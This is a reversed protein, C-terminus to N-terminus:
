FPVLSYRRTHGLAPAALLSLSSCPARLGAGLEGLGWAQAQAMGPRLGAVSGPRERCGVALALEASIYAWNSHLQPHTYIAHQETKPM